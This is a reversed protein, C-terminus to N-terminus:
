ENDFRSNKWANLMLDGKNKDVYMINVTFEKNNFLHSYMMLNLIVANPFTIKLKFTQFTLKNIVATSTVSDLKADPMQAKFTNYLIDDVNRCSAIYDGDTKIDFPQYNSEFYNFQDTRFVFINKAQNEVKGNYTNEIAKTGKNQMKAWTEAPVTEFDQPISIHWKFDKNYVEKKATGTQSNCSQALLTVISFLLLYKKM